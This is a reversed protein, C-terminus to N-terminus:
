VSHDLDLNPARWLVFAMGLLSGFFVAFPAPWSPDCGAVISFFFHQLPAPNQQYDSLSQFPMAKCNQASCHAVSESSVVVKNTLEIVAMKAM